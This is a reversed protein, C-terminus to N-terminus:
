QVQKRTYKELIRRFHKKIHFGTVLIPDGNMLMRVAIWISTAPNSKVINKLQGIAPTRYSKMNNSALLDNYRQLVSLRIKINELSVSSTLSPNGQRVSYTVLNSIMVKQSAFFLNASFMVDNSVPVDDFTLNNENILNRRIFKCWPPYLQVLANQNGEQAIDILENVGVHRSGITGDERFSTCKVYVVDQQSISIDSLISSLNETIFKDDSDAFFVWTGTAKSVGLNRASGAYKTGEQQHILTINKRDATASNPPNSSHDDVVIVEILNTDPITSLLAELMEPRNHHPIIISLLPLHSM